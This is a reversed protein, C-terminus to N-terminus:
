QSVAALHAAQSGQLYFGWRMYNWGFFLGCNGLTGYANGGEYWSHRYICSDRSEAKIFWNRNDAGGYISFRQTDAHSCNAVKFRWGDDAICSGQIHGSVTYASRLMYGGNYAIVYWRQKSNGANCRKVQMNQRDSSITLCRNNAKQRIQIWKGTDALEGPAPVFTGGAELIEQDSLPAIELDFYDNFAGVIENAIYGQPITGPHLGDTAAFKLTTALTGCKGDSNCAGLTGSGPTPMVVADDVRASSAAPIAYPGILLDGNVPNMKDPDQNFRWPDLTPLGRAGAESIIRQNTENIRQLVIGQAIGAATGLPLLGILIKNAGADIMNDVGEFLTSIFEDEFADWSSDCFSQQKLERAAFDNSGIMLFIIDLDGNSIYPLIADIQQQMDHGGLGPSLVTGSVRAFNYEHGRLRPEGYLNPNDTLPGFYLEDSRNLVLQQLWNRAPFDTMMPVLPMIGDLLAALVGSGFNGGNCDTSSSLAGMGFSESISAMLGVPDYDRYYEASMSDGVVGVSVPEAQSAAAFLGTACLVRAAQKLKNALQQSNRKNM